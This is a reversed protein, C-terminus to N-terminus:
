AHTRQIQGVVEDPRLLAEVQERADDSDEAELDIVRSHENGEALDLYARFTMTM